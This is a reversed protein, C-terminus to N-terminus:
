LNRAFLLSNLYESEECNFFKESSDVVPDVVADEELTMTIYTNTYSGSFDAYYHMKVIGSIFFDRTNHTVIAFSTTTSQPYPVYNYGLYAGTANTSTVKPDVYRDFHAAIDATANNYVYGYWPKDPYVRRLRIIKSRWCPDTSDVTIACYLTCIFSALTIRM